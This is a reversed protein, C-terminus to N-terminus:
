QSHTTYHWTEWTTQQQLALSVLQLAEQAFKEKLLTRGLTPNFYFAKSVSNTGITHALVPPLSIAIWVHGVPKEPTGGDPGAIGTIGVGITQEPHPSRQQVGNAMALAVTQSVAGHTNLTEAPVNLWTQKVENSYSVMNGLVVASSGAINTLWHSVLGGTCSEATSIYLAQQRAQKVVWTALDPVTPPLAFPQLRKPINNRWHTFFTQAQLTTQPQTSTLEIRIRQENEVYPAVTYPADKPNMQTAGLAEVLHSEGISYFYVSHRQIATNEQTITSASLPQIGLTNLTLPLLAYVERPIGPLCILWQKFPLQWVTAPATGVPNVVATAGQPILTQKWNNTPMTANPQHAFRANFWNTLHTTSAEDQVLPVNFATALTAITLDDETPGLGGTLIVGEAVSLATFLAHNIATPNDGVTAHHVVQLGFLPLQKALWSANTNTVDGLLVENGIAVLAVTTPITETHQTNAYHYLPNGTQFATQLTTLITSIMM